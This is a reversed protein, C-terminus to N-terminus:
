FAPYKHELEKLKATDIRVKANGTARDVFIILPILEDKIELNAEFRNKALLEDQEKVRKELSDIKQQLVDKAPLPLATSFDGHKIRKKEIQELEFIMERQADLIEQLEKIEDDNHKNSYQSESVIGSTLNHTQALKPREDGTDSVEVLVKKSDISSTNAVTRTSKKQNKYEHKLCGQVYRDSIYGKLHKSIEESIMDKPMGSEELRKALELIIERKKGDLEEVKENIEKLENLAWEFCAEFTDM